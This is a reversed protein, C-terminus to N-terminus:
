EDAEDDFDMNKASQRGKRREARQEIARLQKPSLEEKRQRWPAPGADGAMICGLPEIKAIIAALGFQTIQAEIQEAPKYAIPTESLDPGGCYWRVHIQSTTERIVDRIQGPDTGVKDMLARRSLNRGAGHPAFSLHDANDLGLVMLVPSAMNLPILGLLPRGEDDKWAPTAGKGHYFIDGRRWVFNHENGFSALGTAGSKQLFRDHIAEHNARTWRSVYQLADWYAAGIEKRVDLWAAAPPIGVAIRGSEALAAKHGRSYVASGLGRSGHHTILVRSSKEPALANALNGYGAQRLAALFTPTHTVHGIYAFHNGDGQDAMHMAAREQLGHLFPNSWVDEHLVPHDVRNEPHRGGAGFRTSETLRDLLEPVPLDSLFFTAFMSCCIDASHASPLIANEVGIVGGVPITATASGAPCADPMVAGFKVVPTRMLENMLRRVAGINKEDEPGTPLIAESFPLPESRMAIKERFAEEFDRRLLKLLYKVDDIGRQEYERARELAQGFHPGPTWGDEILHKSTLIAM